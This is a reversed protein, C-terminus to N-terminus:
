VPFNTVLAALLLRAALWRLAGSARRPRSRAARM